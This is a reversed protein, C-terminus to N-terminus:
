QLIVKQTSVSGNIEVNIFYIGSQANNLDITERSYGVSRQDSYVLNGLVNYVSINAVAGRDLFYDMVVMKRDAFVRLQDETLDTPALCDDYDDKSLLIKLRLPALNNGVTFRYKAGSAIEVQEGTEENLLNMCQFDKFRALGKFGIEFDGAMGSEVVVPIEVHQEEPNIYNVMTEEGAYDMWMNIARSDPVKLPPVDLPDVGAFANRDKRIYIASGFQTNEGKVEVKLHEQPAQKFFQSNNLDSRLMSTTFTLTQTSSVNLWFGMGPPVFTNGSRFNYQSSDADYYWFAGGVITAAANVSPWNLFGAYPNGVLNWGSGTNSLSVPTNSLNLDSGRFDWAKDNWTTLDDGLWAEYGRGVPMANSTNTPATYANTTNDYYYVSIFGSASGDGGPIGSIFVENDLDELTTSSIGANTITNWDASTRSLFRQVRVGNTVLSGLGENAIHGTRASNSNLFLSDGHQFTGQTLFIGGFTGFPGGLFRTIVTSSSEIDGLTITGGTSNNVLQANGDDRRFIIRSTPDANLTAGAQIDVDGKVILTAGAQLDLTGSTNIVLSNCAQTGTVEITTFGDIIVHVTSDPTVGCSWITGPTDTWDDTSSLNQSQCTTAGTYGLTFYPGGDYMDVGSFTITSSGTPVTADVTADDFNGDDDRLLRYESPTAGISFGSIDFSIDVTGVNGNSTDAVWERNLISSITGNLPAGPASGTLAGNDHGWLYYDGDNLSSASNVRVISDGQADTHNVGGTEQGIGAVDNPHTGDFSYLDNSITLGYKSALHNNVIYLQATNLASGYVIIEAIRGDLYWSGTTSNRGITSGAHTGTSFSSVSATHALAGNVYRNMVDSTSGTISVSRLVTNTNVGNTTRSVFTGNDLKILEEHRGSRFLSNWKFNNGGTYTTSFLNQASSPADTEAVIFWTLDDQSNFDTSPAINMLDNGDFDIAPLSNIQNTLFTPKRTGTGQVASNGNGSQDTWVNVSAGNSYSEQSADLWTLLTSNSGVGAPGSQGLALTGVLCLLAAGILNKFDM